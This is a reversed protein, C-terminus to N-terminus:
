RPALALLDLEEATAGIASPVPRVAAMVSAIALTLCTRRSLTRM